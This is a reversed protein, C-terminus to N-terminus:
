DCLNHITAAGPILAAAAGTVPAKVVSFGNPSTRSTITAKVDATTLFFFVNNLPDFYTMPADKSAM